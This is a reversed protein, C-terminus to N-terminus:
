AVMVLLNKSFKSMCRVSTVDHLSENEVISPKHRYQVRPKDPTADGTVELDVPLNYGVQQRLEASGTMAEM